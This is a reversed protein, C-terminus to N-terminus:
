DAAPTEFHVDGNNLTFQPIFVEKGDVMERRPAASLDISM